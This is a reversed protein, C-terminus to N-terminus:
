IVRCLIDDPELNEECYTMPKWIKKVIHWGEESM